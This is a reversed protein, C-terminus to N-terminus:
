DDVGQLPIVITVTTGENKKSDIDVSGGDYMARIRKNINGLGIGVAEKGEAADEGSRLKNKIELLTEESM